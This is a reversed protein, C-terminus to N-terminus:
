VGFGNMVCMCAINVYGILGVATYLVRVLTGGRGETWAQVIYISTLVTAAFLLYCSVRILPMILSYIIATDAHIYRIGMIGNLVFYAIVAVGSVLLASKLVVLTKRRRVISIILCVGLILYVPLSAMSANWLGAEVPSVKEYDFDLVSLIMRGDREGVKLYGRDENYFLGEGAYRYTWDIGDAAFKLNGAKDCQLRCTMIVSKVKTLDHHGYAGFTYKGSIRGADMDFPVGERVTADMEDAMRETLCAYVIDIFENCLGASGPSDTNTAIFVGIGKEPLVSVKSRFSPLAGGHEYTVYGNRIAQGFGLGYGSVRQDRAYQASLMRSVTEERLIRAGGYEGGSLFMRMFKGMDSASACISGSPHNGILTYASEMYRGSRYVYPKAMDGIVSATLGYSAHGMKLPSLINETIYQDLPMGLAIEVLYGALAMGYVSYECFTGPQRIVPPMERALVEGIPEMADFLVDGRSKVYLPIRDDFGGTHTLLHQLTVPTKYPNDIQFAKLYTNVDEDLSLKGREATQMVAAATFLKSVSAIQFGTTEPDVPVRAAIDAYGYGKELIVAGDKVISVAAGAVHYEKLVKEM